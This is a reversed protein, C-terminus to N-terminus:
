KSAVVIIFLVGKGNVVILALLGNCGGGKPYAVHWKV